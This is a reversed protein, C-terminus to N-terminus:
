TRAAYTIAAAMGDLAVQREVAGCDYAAKPMGYVICSAEDQGLTPSGQERMHLLGEAGDKGMGTLIVGLAHSGIERAVSEFLVDVSPCCSHVPEGPHCDLVMQTGQRQVTMHMNGPAIYVHNPRVIDGSAGEKVDLVCETNLREALLRSFMPPIHQVVVIGPLPPRLQPLIASLAETGGTSSGIAILQIQAKALNAPQSVPPPSAPPLPTVPPTDSPAIPPSPQPAAKTHLVQQAASSLPLWGKSPMTATWIERTVIAGPGVDTHEVKDTPTQSTILQVLEDFFSDLPQNPGPKQVHAIAGCGLATRRSTSLLGYTIIPLGPHQSTLLPLFPNGDVTIVGMAFNMLLISPRFLSLKSQAEIPDGAREILSGSPLRKLLADACADRFFISNEILLLRIDRM